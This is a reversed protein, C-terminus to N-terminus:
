KSINTNVNILVCLNDHNINSQITVKTHNRGLCDLKFKIPKKLRDAEWEAAEKLLTISGFCRIKIPNNVVQEWDFYLAGRQEIKTKFLIM